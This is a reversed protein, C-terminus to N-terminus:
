KGQVIFLCRRWVSTQLPAVPRGYARARVGETGAGEGSHETVRLRLGACSRPERGRPSSCSSAPATRIGPERGWGHLWLPAATGRHFVRSPSKYGYSYEEAVPRPLSNGAPAERRGEGHRESTGTRRGESRRPSPRRPAGAPSRVAAAHLRANMARGGRGHGGSFPLASAEWVGEM